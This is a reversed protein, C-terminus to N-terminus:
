AVMGEQWDLVLRDLYPLLRDFSMAGPLVQSAVSRLSDIHSEVSRTDADRFLQVTEFRHLLRKFRIEAPADLFLLFFHNGFKARLSQYDIYHRLGDIAANRAPEIREILQRNLERQMAPNLMVAGGLEQLQNKDAPNAKFWDALVQSYRLYQFGLKQELHQAITTKGSGIRGAIGVVIPVAEPM